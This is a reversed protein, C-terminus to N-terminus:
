PAATRCSHSRRFDTKLKGSAGPKQPQAKVWTEFLVLLVRFLRFVRFLEFNERTERIERAEREKKENMVVFDMLVLFVSFQFSFVSFQDIRHLTITSSRGDM